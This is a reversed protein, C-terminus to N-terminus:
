SAPRAPAAGAIAEGLRETMLAAGLPTMHGYDRFYTPAIGADSATEYLLLEAGELRRLRQLYQEYAEAHRDRVAALYEDRYPFQVVIVRLGDRRAEAVLRALQNLRGESWEYNQYFRDVHETVNLEHPGELPDERDYIVRGDPGVYASGECEDFQCQLWRAIAYRADYTRWFWGVILALSDELSYDTARERLTAFRRDSDRPSIGANVYWDEASVVLVHAQSLKERHRRYLTLGDFPTGSAMGLNLVSGAPVGLLRALQLPLVADRMRSSGLLLVRPRPASPIVEQEILHILGMDSGRVATWIWERRGVALEVLLLIAVAIGAGLPRLGAPHLTDSSSIFSRSM